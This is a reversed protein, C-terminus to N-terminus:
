NLQGVGGCVSAIVSGQWSLVSNQDGTPIWNSGATVNYTTTQLPFALTDTGGNSCPGTISVTAAIPITGNFNTKFSYGGNVWDGNSIKIAGDMSSPGISFTKGSSPPNCYSSPDTASGGPITVTGINTYATRPPQTGGATCS